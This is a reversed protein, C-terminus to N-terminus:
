IQKIFEIILKDKHDEDETNAWTWTYSKEMFKIRGKLKNVQEELSDKEKSDINFPIGLSTCIKYISFIDNEEYYKNAELYLKNLEEDEIKDPHTKKVIERYLAKLKKDVKPKLVEGEEPLFVEKNSITEEYIVHSQNYIEMLDDDKELFEKVRKKFLIDKESIFEEKWEIESMLYDLQKLLSKIQLEDIKDM